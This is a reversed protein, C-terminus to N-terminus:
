LNMSQIFQAIVALAEQSAPENPSKTIFTHPQNAFEKYTVEGGQQTYLKAFNSTMNPALIIDSAGQILLLPPLHTAQGSEVIRHPSGLHMQAEDSWFAHHSEIHKTMQNKLAYHYRALPDTVPWCAIGFALSTDCTPHTLFPEDLWDPNNPCLMNLLLQHGGSSTGLGGVHEPSLNYKPANEKLWSIAYHIDAVSKPYRILPPMRFDIAMVFIGLNALYQDIVANTLRTEDCWRGGHVSVIAKTSSSVEDPIYLRALLAGTDHIRYTVDQIQTSTPISDM